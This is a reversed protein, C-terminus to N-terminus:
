YGTQRQFRHRRCGAARSKRQGPDRKGPNDETDSEPATSRGPGARDDIGLVARLNSADRKIYMLTLRPELTWIRDEGNSFAEARVELLPVHTRSAECKKPPCSVRKGPDQHAATSFTGRRRISQIPYSSVNTLVAHGRLEVPYLM